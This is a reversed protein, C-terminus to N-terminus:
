PFTKHDSKPHLKLYQKINLFYQSLQCTMVNNMDHNVPGHMRCKLRMESSILPVALSSICTPFAASSRTRFNIGRLLGLM